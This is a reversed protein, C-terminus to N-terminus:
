HPSAGDARKKRIRSTRQRQKKIDRSHCSMKNSILKGHVKSKNGLNHHSKTVGEGSHTGQEPSKSSSSAKSSTDDEGENDELDAM